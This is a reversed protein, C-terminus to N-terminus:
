IVVVLDWCRTLAIFRMFPRCEGHLNLSAHHVLLAAQQAYPAHRPARCQTNNLTAVGAGDGGIAAPSHEFLGSFNLLVYSLNSLVHIHCRIACM